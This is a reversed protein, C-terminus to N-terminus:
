IRMDTAAKSAPPRRRHLNKENVVVKRSLELVDDLRELFHPTEFEGGDASFARLGDLSDHDMSVRNRRDVNRRCMGERASKIRFAPAGFL